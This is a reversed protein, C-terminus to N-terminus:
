CSQARYKCMFASQVCLTYGTSKTVVWFRMRDVALRPLKSKLNEIPFLPERNSLRTSRLRRHVTSVEMFDTTTMDVSSGAQLCQNSLGGPLSGYYISNAFMQARKYMYLSWILPQLAIFIASLSPCSQPQTRIFKLRAKIQYNNHEIVAILTTLSTSRPRLM